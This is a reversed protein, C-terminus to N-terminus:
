VNLIRIVKRCRTWIKLFCRAYDRREMFMTFDNTRERFGEMVLASSLAMIAGLTDHYKFGNRIASYWGGM